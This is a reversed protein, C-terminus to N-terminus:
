PEILDLNPKGDELALREVTSGEGGDLLELLVDIREDGGVVFCGRWECPGLFFDALPPELVATDSM